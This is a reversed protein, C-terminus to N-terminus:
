SHRQIAQRLARYDDLSNYVQASIRFWCQGSHELLPVEIRDDEFLARQLTELATATRSPGPLSLTAMSGLMEPPCPPTIGLEDCLMERAKMLLGHQHERLEQWGGPLLQGMFEIASQVSLWATPDFTGPWDFLDQFRNFGERARNLGHSIVNPLVDDRSDSHVHLFAAGKPACVWKHLNGTYYTAGLTELNLDIMGPAHAGDVFSEVGRSRLMEVMEHIPLILATPSTVHDILALRTRHSIVRNIAELVDASGTLPFPIKAVRIVLGHEQAVHDLVNRCANYTHDTTLIEDNPKWSRSRIVANVASTANTVFVLDEPNAKLFDALRRRSEEIHEPLRRWLFQVPEREMEDRLSAQKALVPRPTAGFSGHNLYRVGPDLQWHALFKPDPM